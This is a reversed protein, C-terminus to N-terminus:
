RVTDHVDDGSVSSRAGRDHLRLANVLDRERARCLDALRDLALQGTRSLLERELEAALCRVDDEVVGREVLRDLPDDVADVEVLAVDAAGARTQEDLLRDVLRDDVLELPTERGQADAIREVLVGVDTRDVRLLLQRPDLLEDGRALPFPRLDVLRRTAQGLLAVPERRGDERVDRLAIADRLLLDEPGHERDEREARGLLRDFLRVVRRVAQAGTDPGLFARANEPHGLAQARADDPSIRVVAEVRARREPAVLFGAEPPFAAPGAELRIQLEVSTVGRIA